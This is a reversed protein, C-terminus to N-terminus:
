MTSGLGQGKTTEKEAKKLTSPRTSCLCENLAPYERKARPIKATTSFAVKQHRSTTRSPVKSPCCVREKCFPRRKPLIRKITESTLSKKSEKSSKKM